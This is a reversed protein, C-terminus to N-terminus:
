DRNGGYNRLVAHNPCNLYRCPLDLLSVTIRASPIDAARANAEPYAMRKVDIRNVKSIRIKSAIGDDRERRLDKLAQRNHRHRWGHRFGVLLYVKRAM